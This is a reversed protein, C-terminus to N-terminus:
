KVRQKRVNTTNPDHTDNRVLQKRYCKKPRLKWFHGFTGIFRGAGLLSSVMVVRIADDLRLDMNLPARIRTLRRTYGHNSM